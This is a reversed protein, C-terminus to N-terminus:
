IRETCYLSQFTRKEPRRVAQENFVMKGYCINQEMIHLQWIRKVVAYWGSGASVSGVGCHYLGNRCRENQCRRNGCASMRGNRETRTERQGGHRRDASSVSRAFAAELGTKWGSGRWIDLYAESRAAAYFGNGNREGGWATENRGM